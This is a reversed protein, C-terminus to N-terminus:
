MNKYSLNGHYQKGTFTTLNKSTSKRSNSDKALDADTYGTLIIKGNNFYLCM